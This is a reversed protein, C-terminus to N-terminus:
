GFTFILSKKKKSSEGCITNFMRLNIGVQDKLRRLKQSMHEVAEVNFSRIQLLLVLVFAGHCSKFNGMTCGLQSSPMQSIEERDRYRSTIPFFVLHQFFFLGCYVCISACLVSFVSGLQLSFVSEVLDSSVESFICISKVPLCSGERKLQSACVLVFLFLSYM